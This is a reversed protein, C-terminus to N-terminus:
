HPQKMMQFGNMTCTEFIELQQKSWKHLNRTQTTTRLRLPWLWALSNSDSMNKLGSLQINLSRWAGVKGKYVCQSSDSLVCLHKITTFSPSTSFASILVYLKRFYSPSRHPSIQWSCHLASAETQRSQHVSVQEAELCSLGSCMLSM